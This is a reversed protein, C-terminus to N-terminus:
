FVFTPTREFGALMPPTADFLERSSAGREDALFLRAKGVPGDRLVAALRGGPRLAQLWAAPVEAVAGECVIVDFGSGAPQALDQTVLRVGHDRLAQEVVASARGDGEQAVVDLGVVALVAAAYPAAIALAKEGPRPHIAQLLKAIDRPRMLFRGPAIEAEAEAYAAFARSPACFDERRVTRMAHQLDWETVDNTRVQSDVMNKRASIFDM